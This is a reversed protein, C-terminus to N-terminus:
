KDSIIRIKQTQQLETAALKSEIPQNIMIEALNFARDSRKNTQWFKRCFQMAPWM